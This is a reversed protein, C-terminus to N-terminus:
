LLLLLSVGFVVCIITVLMYRLVVSSGPIGIAEFHHHLPAIRFLKKGTAKRYLLQLVNSVWTAILIGGFICGIWLGSGSDACVALLFTSIAFLTTLTTIGTETLYAKAPAYNAFLWPILMGGALLSLLLVVTDGQLMSVIGIGIFLVLFISGSLGDVGDIVSSIQWFLCWLTFLVAMVLTSVIVNEFPAFPLFTIHAPLLSAFGFGCILMIVSYLMLRDRIRLSKRKILGIDTFDDYLMMLSVAAVTLVALLLIDSRLYLALSIGVVIVTPLLALGGVRPVRRKKISREERERIKKFETAETGYLTKKRDRKYARMKRLLPIVVATVLAGVIVSSWFTILALM